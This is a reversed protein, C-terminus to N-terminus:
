MCMYVICAHRCVSVYTIYGLILDNVIVIDSMRVQKCIKEEIDYLFSDLAPSGGVVLLLPKGNINILVSSHGWRAM